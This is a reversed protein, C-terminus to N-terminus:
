IIYGHFESSSTWRSSIVGFGEYNMEEVFVRDGDVQRIIVVHGYGGVTVGVAGVSPTNSNAYAIWDGANGSFKRDPRQQQAYYTCWGWEFNGHGEPVSSAVYTKVINQNERNVGQTQWQSVVEPAQRIVPTPIFYDRKKLKENKTPIALVQGVELKNPDKIQKNKYFIRQWNTNYKKAIKSLNDNKKVTHKRTEQKQPEVEKVENKLIQHSEFVILNTLDM